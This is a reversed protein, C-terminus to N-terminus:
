IKTREPIGEVAGDELEKLRDELIALYRGGDGNFLREKAIMNRLRPIKFSPKDWDAIVMRVREINTMNWIREPLDEEGKGVYHEYLYESLYEQFMCGDLGDDVNDYMDLLHAVKVCDEHCIWDYVDGDYKITDRRYREGVPIVSGCFMCRHEKRATPTLTKLIEIM